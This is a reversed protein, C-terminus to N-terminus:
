SLTNQMGLFLILLPWPFLFFRSISWNFHTFGRCLFCVKDIWISNYIWYENARGTKRGRGVWGKGGSRGGMFIFLIFIFLTIYIIHIYIFYHMQLTLLHKWHNSLKNWRFVTGTGISESGFTAVFLGVTSMVRSKRIQQLDSQQVDM